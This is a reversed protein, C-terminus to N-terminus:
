QSAGPALGSPPSDSRAHPLHRRLHGREPWIGVTTPIAAHQSNANNRLGAKAHKRAYMDQDALDLAEDLTQGESFEAVGVSVTLSLDELHRGENWRRLYNSIRTVVIEANQSSTNALIMFFEDGGYRFVADSGRTSSKLFGAIESLVFDGTIHRFRTNVKKFHDLDVLLFTLPEKSRRAHSIFRAALEELSRRNFVDTLPDTFSQLRILESQITTAVLKGRVRRSAVRRTTIYTNLLILLTFVVFFLRRSVTIELHVNGTQLFTSPLLICLLACSGVIGSILVILWLEWDRKQLRSLEQTLKAALNDDEIPTVGTPKSVM